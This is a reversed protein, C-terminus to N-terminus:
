RCDDGETEDQTLRGHRRRLVFVLDSHQAHGIAPKLRLGDDVSVAREVDNVERAFRPVTVDEVRVRGIAPPGEGLWDTDVALLSASDSRPRDAPGLERHPLTASKM